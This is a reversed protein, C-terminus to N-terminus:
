NKKRRKSEGKFIEYRKLLKQRYKFHHFPRLIYKNKREKKELVCVQFDWLFILFFLFFFFFFFCRKISIILEM